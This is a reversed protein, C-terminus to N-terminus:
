GIELAQIAKRKGVDTRGDYHLHLTTESNGLITAVTRYSEGADLMTTAVFHRLHLLTVESAGRIAVWRRTLREPRMPRTGDVESPFVYEDPGPRVGVLQERRTAQRELAELASITLPIDRWDSRKTAKRVLGVGRGGDSIAAAIHVESKDFDVDRWVLGQLEGKRMGTSALLVVMDGLEPDRERAVALLTRMEDVAPSFPKVRTSRPRAADKCPNADILGRKRALELARSLVTACRRVWDTGKGAAKMAAFCQEVEQWSMSGLRVDGFRRGDALVTACM